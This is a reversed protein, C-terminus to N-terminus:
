KRSAVMRSNIPEPLAAQRLVNNRKRHARRESSFAPSSASTRCAWANFCTLTARTPAYPTLTLIWSLLHCFRVRRFERKSQHRGVTQLKVLGIHHIRFV